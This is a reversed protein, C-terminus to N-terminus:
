MGAVDDARDDAGGSHMINVNVYVYLVKDFFHPAAEARMEPRTRASCSPVNANSSISKVWCWRST